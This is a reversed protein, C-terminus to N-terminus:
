KVNYKRHLVELEKLGRGVVEKLTSVDTLLTRSLSSGMWTDLGETTAQAIAMAVSRVDDFGSYESGNKGIDEFAYTTTDTVEWKLFAARRIQCPM